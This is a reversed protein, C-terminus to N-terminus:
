KMAQLATTSPSTSWTSHGILSILQRSSTTHTPRYCGCGERPVAEMHHFGRNHKRILNQDAEQEGDVNAKVPRVVDPGGNNM